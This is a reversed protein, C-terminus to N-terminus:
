RGPKPPKYLLSVAKAVNHAHLPQELLQSSHGATLEPRRDPTATFVTFGSSGTESLLTTSRQGKILVSNSPFILTHEGGDWSVLVDTRSGNSHFGFSLNSGPKGNVRTRDTKPELSGGLVRAVSSMDTSTLDNLKKAFPLDPDNAGKEVELSARDADFEATLRTVTDANEPVDRLVKAREDSMRTLAPVNLALIEQAEQEYRESEPNVSM